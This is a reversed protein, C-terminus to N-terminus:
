AGTKLKACPKGLLYHGVFQRTVFISPAQQQEFGGLVNPGEGDNKGGATREAVPSLPKLSQTSVSQIRAIVAVRKADALAGVM